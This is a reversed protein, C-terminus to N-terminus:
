GKKGNHGFWVRFDPCDRPRSPWSMSRWYESRPVPLLDSRHGRAAGRWGMEAFTSVVVGTLAQTWDKLAGSQMAERLSTSAEHTRVTRMFAGFWRQAASEM